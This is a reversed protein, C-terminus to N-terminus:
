SAKTAEKKATEWKLLVLFKEKEKEPTNELLKLIEKEVAKSM